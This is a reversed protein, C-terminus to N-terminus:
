TNYTHLLPEEYAAKHLKDTKYGEINGIVTHSYLFIAGYNKTM